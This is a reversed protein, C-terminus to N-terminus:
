KNELNSELINKYKLKEIKSKLISNESVLSYYQDLQKNINVSTSYINSSIYIKILSLTLIFAAIIFIRGAVDASIGRTYIQKSVSELLIEKEESSVSITYNNNTQINKEAVFYIPEKEKSSNNKM